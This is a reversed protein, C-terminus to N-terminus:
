SSEDAMAALVDGHCAKPKCFCGLTRDKLRHLNDLIWQRREPEIHSLLGTRDGIWETFMTVAQERTEVVVGALTKGKHSFPNGFHMGHKSRGIYVDYKETRSNVVRTSM